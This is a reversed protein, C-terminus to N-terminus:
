NQISGKHNVGMLVCANALTDALDILILSHKHKRTQPFSLVGNKKEPIIHVPHSFLTVSLFRPVYNLYSATACYATTSKM